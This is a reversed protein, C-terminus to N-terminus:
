LSEWAVLWPAPRFDEVRLDREYRARLPPRSSSPSAKFVSEIIYQSWSPPAPDEDEELRLSVGAEQLSPADRLRDVTAHQGDSLLDCTGGAADVVIFREDDQAQNDVQVSRGPRWILRETISNCTGNWRQPYNSWPSESRKTSLGCRTPWFEMLEDSTLNPFGVESGMTSTDVSAVCQMEFIRLGVSRTRSIQTAEDNRGARTLISELSLLYRNTELNLYRGYQHSIRIAEQIHQEAEDLRGMQFLVFSLRYSQRAKAWPGLADSGTLSMIAQIAASYDKRACCLECVVHAYRMQLEVFMSDTRSALSIRDIQRRVYAEQRELDMWDWSSDVFDRCTLLLFRNSTNIRRALEDTSLYFLQEMGEHNFSFTSPLLRWFRNLPHAAGLVEPTLAQGYELFQALLRPHGQVHLRQSIYLFYSLMQPTQEDLITKMSEFAPALIALIDVPEARNMCDLVMEFSEYMTVLLDHGHNGRRSWCYGNQDYYWTGADFSSNICARVAFLMEEVDHSPGPSRFVLAPSTPPPSPTRADVEGAAEVSPMEGKEYRELVHPARRLYQQLKRLDVRRGRVTLTTEKGAASRLRLHRMM